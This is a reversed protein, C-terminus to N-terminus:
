NSSARNLYQAACVTKMLNTELVASHWAQMAAIELSECDAYAPNSWFHSKLYHWLNEIPNLEPSYAPLQVLSVNPPARVQKSTHFGAGGWIMVAHEHPPITHSFQELFVNIVQVNLRPSLLGEAHGTEPYVAGLVWLYEYETEWCFHDEYM